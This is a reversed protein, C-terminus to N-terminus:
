TRNSNTRPRFLDFNKNIKSPGAAGPSTTQTGPPSKTPSRKRKYDTTGREASIQKNTSRKDENKNEKIILKDYRITAINGKKIEEVQRVKLDKRIKLVDKPFDETVYTNKPFNKNNRLLEVKRWALTLKVLIPRRKNDQIKGLRYFDGIEWKDFNEMKGDKGAENFTSIILELLEGKNKESEDLGHLIVNNKRVEKELTSVKGNLIKVENKLKANEEVLPKLNEEITSAVNSALTDHQLKFEEKLENIKKNINENIKELLLEM